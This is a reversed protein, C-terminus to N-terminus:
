MLGYFRFEVRGMPSKKLGIAKRDKLFEAEM